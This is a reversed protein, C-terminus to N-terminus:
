IPGFVGMLGLAFLVVGIAVAIAHPLAVHPYLMVWRNAGPEDNVDKWAEPVHPDKKSKSV